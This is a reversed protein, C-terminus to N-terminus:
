ISGLSSKKSAHIQLLWSNPNARMHVRTQKRTAHCSLDSLDDHLPHLLLKCLLQQLLQKCQLQQLLQKCQLQQLLQKCLLQQLLQKCLLQQLLQKCQLQQLLQKCQLQQLLQKCQQPQRECTHIYLRTCACIFM